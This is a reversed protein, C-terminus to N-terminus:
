SLGIVEKTKAYHQGKSITQILTCIQRPPTLKNRHTDM